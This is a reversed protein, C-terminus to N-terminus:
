GYVAILLFFMTGRNNFCGTLSLFIQSIGRFAFDRAVQKALSKKRTLPNRM